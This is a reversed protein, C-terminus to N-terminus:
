SVILAVTYPSFAGQERVAADEEPIETQFFNVVICELYNTKLLQQSVSVFILKDSSVDDDDADDNTRSDKNLSKERM